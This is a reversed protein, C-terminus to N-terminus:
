FDFRAKLQFSRAANVGTGIKTNFAGFPVFSNTMDLNPAGAPQNFAVFPGGALSPIAHNFVNIADIRVTM